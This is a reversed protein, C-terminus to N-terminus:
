NEQSPKNPTFVYSTNDLYNSDRVEITRDISTGVDSYGIDTILKLFDDRSVGNHIEVVLKPQFERLMTSMGRMTQIEMGDVDIKVGNVSSDGDCINEWISDFSISYYDVFPRGNIDYHTTM